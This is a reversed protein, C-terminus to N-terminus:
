NPGFTDHNVGSLGAPMTLPPGFAADHTIKPTPTCGPGKAIEELAAPEPEADALLWKLTFGRSSDVDVHVVGSGKRQASSCVYVHPLRHVDSAM